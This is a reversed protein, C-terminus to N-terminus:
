PEVPEVPDTVVVVVAAAEKARRVEIATKVAVPDAIISDELYKRDGTTAVDAQDAWQNLQSGLQTFIFESANLPINSPSQGPRNNFDELAKVLGAEQRVDTVDFTIKM